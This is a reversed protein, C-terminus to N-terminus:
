YKVVRTWKQCNCNRCLPQINEINDSGGKSLPIIHDISLKIEPEKRKCAPCIWNYQAKLTEWEGFTHSGQASRRRHHWLNKQWNRYRKWEVEDKIKRFKKGKVGSPHSRSGCSISCFRQSRRSTKFNKKCFKCVNIIGISKRFEKHGKQFGRLGKSM